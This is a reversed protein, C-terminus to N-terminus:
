RSMQSLFLPTQGRLDSKIVSSNEGGKGSVAAHITRLSEEVSKIAPHDVAMPISQSLLTDIRSMANAFDQNAETRPVPSLNNNAAKHLDDNMETKREAAAAGCSDNPVVDNEEAAGGGATSTSNGATSRIRALRERLNSVGSSRQGTSTSASASASPSTPSPSSEETTIPVTPEASM